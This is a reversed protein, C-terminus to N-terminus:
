LSYICMVVNSLLILSVRNRAEEEAKKKALLEELSLPEKRALLKSEDEENEKRLELEEKKLERKIDKGRFIM